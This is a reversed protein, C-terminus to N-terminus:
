RRSRRRSEPVVMQGIKFPTFMPPPPNDLPVDFGQDRVKGAFWSQVEEVFQPDRMRLNEYTVAKARSLMSFCAQIPEMGWYRAPNETWLASVNAAYQTKEVDEQRTGALFARWRTPSRRRATSPTTSISRTRWRWSPAPGSRSFHATNGTRRRPSRYERLVLKKNCIVPFRRWHSRNGVVGIVRSFIRGCTRSTPSNNAAREMPRDGTRSKGLDYGAGEIVWTCMNQKYQYTCLDWIGFENTTFHFSFARLEARSTGLWIFHNRRLEIEPQFHEKYRERIFSNIGDAAVILDADKFAESVDAVEALLPAQRRSSGAARMCSWLLTRRETGCFGHGTSRVTKGHFHFDVEDWYSFERTIAEYSAADYDMLNDLTEDSFVVGFGFTDDAKNREYVAISM